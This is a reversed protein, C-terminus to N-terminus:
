INDTPRAPWSNRSYSSIAGSTVLNQSEQGYGIVNEKTIMKTRHYRTLLFPLLKRECSAWGVAWSVTCPLEGWMGESPVRGAGVRGREEGM